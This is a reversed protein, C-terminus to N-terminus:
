ALRKLKKPNRRSDRFRNLGQQLIFNIMQPYGIGEIAFSDAVEYGKGIDPNPNVDIVYIRGDDDVRMDIRAYADVFLAGCVEKAVSKLRRALMSEGARLKTTKVQHKKRYEPDWKVKETAITDAGKDGHRFVTELPALVRIRSGQRFVTLHFERGQIFREILVQGGYKGFLREAVKQAQKGNGVLSRRDIGLSADEDALKVIAPYHVQSALKRVARSSPLTVFSPTIVKQHRMLWKAVSKRRCALLSISKCGTYPMALDDLFDPLIGEFSSNGSFEELLNFVIDFERRKLAMRLQSFSGYVGLFEVYHGLAQLARLVDWETKWAARHPALAGKFDTPPVM